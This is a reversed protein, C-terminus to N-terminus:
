LLKRMIQPWWKPIFVLTTPTMIFIWFIFVLNQLSWKLYRQFSSFCFLFLFWYIIANLLCRLSVQPWVSFCWFRQKKDCDVQLTCWIRHFHFTSLMLRWTYMKLNNKEITGKYTLNMCWQLTQSQLLHNYFELSLDEICTFTLCALCPQSLTSTM